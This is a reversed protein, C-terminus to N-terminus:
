SSGLFSENCRGYVCFQCQHQQHLISPEEHGRLWGFSWRSHLRRKHPEQLYFHNLRQKALRSTQFNSLEKQVSSTFLSNEQRIVVEGLVCRREVMDAEVEIKSSCRRRGRQLFMPGYGDNMRPASIMASPSCRM